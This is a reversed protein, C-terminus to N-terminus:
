ERTFIDLHKLPILLNRLEVIDDYWGYCELMSLPTFLALDTIDEEGDDYCFVSIQCVNGNKRIMCVYFPEYGDDGWYFGYILNPNSINKLWLDDVIDTKNINLEFCDRLCSVDTIRDNSSLDVCSIKDMMRLDGDMIHCDILTLTHLTNVYPLLMCILRKLNLRRCDGYNSSIDSGNAYLSYIIKQQLLSIMKSITANDYNHNLKIDLLRCGTELMLKKINKCTASFNRGDERDLFGTIYVGHEKRFFIQKIIEFPIETIHIHLDDRARKPSCNIEIEDSKRKAM